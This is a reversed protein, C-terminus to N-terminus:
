SSNQHITTQKLPLYNLTQIITKQKYLIEKILYKTESHRVIEREKTKINYLTNKNTVM